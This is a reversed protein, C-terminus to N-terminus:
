QAEEKWACTSQVRGRRPGPVNVRAGGRERSGSAMFGSNLSPGTRSPRGFSGDAPFRAPTDDLCTGPFPAPFEFPMDGRSASGGGAM